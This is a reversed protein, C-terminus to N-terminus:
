FFFFFKLCKYKKAGGGWKQELGTGHISGELCSAWELAENRCGAGGSLPFFSVCVLSLIFCLVCRQPNPENKKDRSHRIMRCKGIVASPRSVSMGKFALRYPTFLCTTMVSSGYTEPGVTGAALSKDQGATRVWGM